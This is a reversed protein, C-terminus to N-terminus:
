NWQLREENQLLIFDLNQFQADNADIRSAVNPVINVDYDVSIQWTRKADADADKIGFRVIDGDTDIEMTCTGVVGSEKLAYEPTGNATGLQKIDQGEISSFATYYAFAETSGLPYTSSYGGVVTSIGKLRINVISNIPIKIQKKKDTGCSYAFGKTNGSTKGLLILRHSEGLLVGINGINANYKIKIDDAMEPVINFSYKNRDSGVSLGRYYGGIVLGVYSKVNNFNM